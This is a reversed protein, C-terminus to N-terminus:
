CVRALPKLPGAAPAFRVEGASFSRPFELEIIERPILRINVNLLCHSAPIPRADAVPSGAYADQFLCCDVM